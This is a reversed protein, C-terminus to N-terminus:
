TGWRQQQLQKSYILQDHTFQAAAEEAVIRQVRAHQRLAPVVIQQMTDEFTDKIEIRLRKTITGSDASLPLVKTLTGRMSTGNNKVFNELMEVVWRRAASRNAMLEGAISLDTLDLTIMATAISEDHRPLQTESLPVPASVLSSACCDISCTDVYAAMKIQILLCSLPQTLFLISSLLLCALCTDM